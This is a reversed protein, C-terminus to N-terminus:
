LNSYTAMIKYNQSNIGFGIIEAVDDITYKEKNKKLISEIFQAGMQIDDGTYWIMEEGNFSEDYPNAGLECLQKIVRYRRKDTIEDYLLEELSKSFDLNVPEEKWEAVRSEEDDFFAGTFDEIMLDDIKGLNFQAVFLDLIKGNNINRQKFVENDPYAEFCMDLCLPIIFIPCQKVFGGIDTIPKQYKTEVLKKVKDFDSNIVAHILENDEFFKREM